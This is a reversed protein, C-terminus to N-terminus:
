EGEEGDIKRDLDDKTIGMDDLLQECIYEDIEWDEPIQRYFHKEILEDAEGNLEAEYIRDLVEQADFGLDLKEYIDDIGNIEFKVYM